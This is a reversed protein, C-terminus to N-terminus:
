CGVRTARTAIFQIVTLQRDQTDLPQINKDVSQLTFKSEKLCGIVTLIDLLIDERNESVYTVTTQEVAKGINRQDTTPYMTGSEIIFFDSDTTFVMNGDDDAKIIQVDNVDNETVTDIFVPTGKFESELNDALKTTFRNLREAEARYNDRISM